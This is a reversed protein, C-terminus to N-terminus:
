SISGEKLPPFFIAWLINSETHAEYSKKDFRIFVFFLNLKIM